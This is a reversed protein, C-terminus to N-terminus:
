EGKSYEALAKVLLDNEWKRRIAVRTHYRSLGYFTHAPRVLIRKEHLLKDYLELSDIWEHEILLFNVHSEYVRYGLRRLRDTIDVRELAIFAQSGKIYKWLAERHDVLTKKIACEAIANVNWPQRLSDVKEVVRKSESYLFGIRLGPIAFVKTFTRTVIINEELYRELLGMYSSSLEAYAEDVLIYAKGRLSSALEEIERIPTITGTPNNPNSIIVLPKSKNKVKSALEDIDLLFRNNNTKMLYHVCKIGLISCISDYEPDGYSPSVIVLTKPKLATIALNLAEAAGNCPVISRYDLGGYFYTIAKRLEIYEYDPYRTYVNKVCCEAISDELEVPVGLPNTNISFDLVGKVRIRGSGGHYRM